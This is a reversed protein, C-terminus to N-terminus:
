EGLCWNQIATELAGAFLGAAVAVWFLAAGEGPDLDKQYWLPVMAFEVMRIIPLLPRIVSDGM